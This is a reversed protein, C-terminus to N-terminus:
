NVYVMLLLNHLHSFDSVNNIAFVFNLKRSYAILSKGAHIRRSLIVLQTLFLCVSMNSPMLPCDFQISKLPQSPSSPSWVLTPEADQDM